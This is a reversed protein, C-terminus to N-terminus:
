ESLESIYIDLNDCIIRQKDRKGVWFDRERIPISQKAQENVAISAAIQLKIEPQYQPYDDRLSQIVAEIRQLIRTALPQFEHLHEKNVCSRYLTIANNRASEFCNTILQSQKHTAPHHSCPTTCKACLLPKVKDKRTERKEKQRPM